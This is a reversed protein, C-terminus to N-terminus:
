VHGAEIQKAQKLGIKPMLTALRYFTVSFVVSIPLHRTRRLVSNVAEVLNTTMQGYRYGEDYSQTWQWNEMSGLWTRLNTPLSSMQSELTAFRLRFRRPELEYTMNVLEKKWDKNKYDKHFNAAIHRICYVSMWPVGLRRIAALLGKSRDSILCFYKDERVVHRRLNTLFFEWSEFCELEVIAFAIPLVNRNDDQAVAILLIQTYKGYLWTGDVQVMQKCYPFARVCPEFTWFQRHFVRKGPQIEGDPSKYPLTQLDTVTGPVYVHM